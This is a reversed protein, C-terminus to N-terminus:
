WDVRARMFSLLNSYMQMLKEGIQDRAQIHQLAETPSMAPVYPQLMYIKLEPRAAALRRYFEEVLEWQPDLGLKALGSMIEQVNRGTQLMTLAELPTIPKGAVIMFPVNSFAPNSRIFDALRRTKEEVSM